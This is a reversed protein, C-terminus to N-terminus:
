CQCTDELIEGQSRELLYSVTNRQKGKEVQYYGQQQRIGYCQLTHGQRTDQISRAPVAPILLMVALALVLLRSLASFKTQIHRLM